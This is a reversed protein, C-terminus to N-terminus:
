NAMDSEYVEAIDAIREELLAADDSRGEHRYYDALRILALGVEGHLPGHASEATRVARQYSLEISTDSNNEMHEDIDTIGSVAHAQYMRSIENNMNYVEM